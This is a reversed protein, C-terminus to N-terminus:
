LIILSESCMGFFLSFQGPEILTYYQKLTLNNQINTRTNSVSYLAALVALISVYSEDLLEFYLM